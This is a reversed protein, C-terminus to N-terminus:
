SRRLRNIARGGWGDTTTLLRPLRYALHGIPRLVREFTPSYMRVEGGWATKFPTGGGVFQDRTWDVGSLLLEADSRPLGGVDFTHLGAEKAWEFMAWQVADNTNARRSDPSDLWGTLKFDARGNFATALGGALAVGDIEALFLEVHDPRLAHWQRHLYDLSMPLFGNREASLVHLAHFAEIDSDDGRRVKVGERDARNLNKRRSRDCGARIEDLSQRLDVEVTANTAVEIGAPRYGREVLVDEVVPGSRPPQVLLACLGLTRAAQELEDIVMSVVETTDAIPGYPVYGIATFGPIRRSLIQAGGTLDGASDRLGVRHVDLSKAKVRGWRSTQLLDGQPRSAVFADWEDGDVGRTQGVRESVAKM